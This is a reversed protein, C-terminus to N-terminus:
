EIAEDVIALLKPSVELGLAKATKLNIMLEFKTPLVVPLNKPEAGGLIRGAYAGAQRYAWTLETGYSLLGGAEVYERWPYAAPIRHRAALAVLQARRVTFLPDASVLLGNVQQQVATEFATNMEGENTAKLILLERGIRKAVTAMTKIEFETVPAGPNVLMAVNRVSPTLDYLLELRKGVLETSYVSAGTANGGPENISTVLGLQVPDFGVVFIVPIKSTAQLAAKASIVGGTAAIVNVEKKVLESAMTGLEGYHGEAWRYDIWVNRGEEYGRDLLGQRFAALFKGFTRPSGTSLFGIVPLPSPPLAPQAQASLPWAAAAGLLGLVQRRDM